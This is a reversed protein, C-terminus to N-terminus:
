NFRKVINVLCKYKSIPETRATVNLGPGVGVDNKARVVMTYSTNPELNELSVKGGARNPM